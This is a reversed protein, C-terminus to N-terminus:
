SCSAFVANELPTRRDPVAAGFHCVFGRCDGLDRKFMIVDCQRDIARPVGALLSPRMICITHELLGFPGLILITLLRDGWLKSLMFVEICGPQARGRRTDRRRHGITARSAQSCGAKRCDRAQCCGEAVEAFGFRVTATAPKKNTEYILDVVSCLVCIMSCRPSPLVLSVICVVCVCPVCLVCQVCECFVYM